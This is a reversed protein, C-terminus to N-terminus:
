KKKYVLISKRTDDLVIVSKDDPSFIGKLITGREFASPPAVISELEGKPNIVKIRTLGKELTIFRGDNALWFHNPNCCGCFGDATMASKGWSALREGELNYKYLEHYGPNVVWFSNEDIKRLAFYGSPIIFGKSGDVKADITRKLNGELDYIFVAKNGVDALVLKDGLKAISTIIATESLEFLESLKGDKFTFISHNMSVFLEEDFHMSSIIGNLSVKEKVVFDDFQANANIVILSSDAGVWLTNGDGTFFNAQEIELEFESLLEHSLMSDQPEEMTYNFKYKNQKDPGKGFFLDGILWVIFVVLLFLSVYKILENKM